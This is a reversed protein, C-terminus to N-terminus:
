NVAGLGKLVGQAQDLPSSDTHAISYSLPLSQMQPDTERIDVGPTAIGFVSSIGGTTFVGSPMWM